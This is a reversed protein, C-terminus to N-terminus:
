ILDEARLGPLVKMLIRPHKPKRYPPSIWWYITNYGRIEWGHSVLALRLKEINGDGYKRSKPDDYIFGNAEMAARIARARKKDQTM